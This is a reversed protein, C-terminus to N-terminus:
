VIRGRRRSPEPSQIRRRSPAECASLPWLSSEFRSWRLQGIFFLTMPLSAPLQGVVIGAALRQSIDRDRHESADAALRIRPLPLLCISRMGSGRCRCAVLAHSAMRLQAVRGAALPERAQLCRGHQAHVGFLGLDHSRRRARHTCRPRLQWARLAKPAVKSAVVFSQRREPPM